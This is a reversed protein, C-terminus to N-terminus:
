KLLLKRHKTKLKVRAQSDTVVNSNTIGDKRDKAYFLFEDIWQGIGGNEYITLFLDWDQYRKVTEDFGPFAETKILSMTSCINYKYFRKGDFPHFRLKQNGLIYNCYVWSAAPKEHMRQLMKELANDALIVDLDCFFLFQGRSKSFGYNRAYNVGHNKELNYLPVDLSKEYEAVLQQLEGKQSSGDDVIVIQLFNYTQRAISDLLAPLHEKANYVPVIVSILGQTYDTNENKLWPINTTLTTPGGNTCSSILDRCLQKDGESSLKQKEKFGHKLYHYLPNVGAKAVDPNQQLYWNTDFLSSPNRGECWGHRIYHVIPNVCSRAVDLNNRLYYERNFLGSRKVVRYMRIQTLVNKVKNQM